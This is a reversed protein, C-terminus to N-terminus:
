DFLVTSSSIGIKWLLAERRHASVRLSNQAHAYSCFNLLLGLLDAQVVRANARLLDWAHLFHCCILLFDWCRQRRSTDAICERLKHRLVVCMKPTVAAAPQQVKGMFESYLAENRPASNALHAYLKGPNPQHNLHYEYLRRHTRVM